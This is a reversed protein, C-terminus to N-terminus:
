PPNTQKRMMQDANVPIILVQRHHMYLIFHLWKMKKYFVKNKNFHDDYNTKNMFTYSFCFKDELFLLHTTYYNSFPTFISVKILKIKACM